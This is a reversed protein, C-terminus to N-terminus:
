SIRGEGGWLCKSKKRLIKVVSFTQHKEILCNLPVYEFGRDTGKRMDSGLGVFGRKGVKGFGKWFM